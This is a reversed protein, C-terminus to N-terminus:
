FSTEDDLESQAHEDTDIGTLQKLTQALTEPAFPKHIFRAGQQELREIRTESGETSVVIIPLEATQPDTRIRKIMEEGNMVPMNIDVLALDLWNEKLKELGEKGNSAQHIEGVPVGCIKLTKCIMARMVASDDVVLVNLSM